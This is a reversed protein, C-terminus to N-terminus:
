DSWFGWPNVDILADIYEPFSDSNQLVDDPAFVFHECAIHATQLRTIQAASVSVFLTDRRLAIGRAGFRREWSGLM